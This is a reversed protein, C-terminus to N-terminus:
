SAAGRQADAAGDDNCRAPPGPCRGHKRVDYKVAMRGAIFLGAVPTRGVLNVCPVLELGCARCAAGYGHTPNPEDDPADNIAWRHLSPVDDASAM